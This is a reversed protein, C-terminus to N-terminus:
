SPSSLDSSGGLRRVGIHTNEGNSADAQRKEGGTAHLSPGYQVNERPREVGHRGKPEVEM